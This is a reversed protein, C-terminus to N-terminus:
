HSLGNAFCSPPLGSLPCSCVLRHWSLAVPLFIHPSGLWQNMKKRKIEKIVGQAAFLNGWCVLRELTEARSQKTNDSEMAESQREIVKKCEELAGLVARQALTAKEDLSETM